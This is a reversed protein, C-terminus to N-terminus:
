LYLLFISLFQNSLLLKSLLLGLLHFIQSFIELMLYDDFLSFEVDSFLDVFLSFSLHLSLCFNNLLLLESLLFSCGILNLFDLFLLSLSFLSNSLFDLSLSNDSLLEGSHLLLIHLSSSLSFNIV